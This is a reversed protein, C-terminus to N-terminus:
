TIKKIPNNTENEIEKKQPQLKYVIYGFGALLHLVIIIFIFTPM